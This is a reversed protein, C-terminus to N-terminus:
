PTAGDPTSEFLCGVLDLIDAMGQPDYAGPADNKFIKVDGNKTVIIGSDNLRYIDTSDLGVRGLPVNDWFGTKLRSAVLSLPCCRSSTTLSVKGERVDQAVDFFAKAVTQNNPTVM